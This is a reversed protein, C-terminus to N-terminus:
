HRGKCIKQVDEKVQTFGTQVIQTLSAIENLARDLKNKIEQIDVERLQRSASTYSYNPFLDDMKKLGWIKGDQELQLNLILTKCKPCVMCVKSAKQSEPHNQGGQFPQAEKVSNALFPEEGFVLFPFLLCILILGFVQNRM